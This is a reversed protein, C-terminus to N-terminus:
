IEDNLTSEFEKKAKFSKFIRIDSDDDYETKHVYKERRSELQKWLKRRVEIIEIQV